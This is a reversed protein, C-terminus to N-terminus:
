WTLRIVTGVLLASLKKRNRGGLVELSNDVFYVIAIFRVDKLSPMPSPIKYMTIGKKPMPMTM